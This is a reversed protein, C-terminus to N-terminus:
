ITDYTIGIFSGRKVMYLCCVHRTYSLQCSKRLKYVNESKSLYLPSFIFEQSTNEISGLNLYRNLMNVPCTPLGTKAVLVDRGERYIDTKSKVLFLKIYTPFFTIDSRRLNILESFRLLGSYCILCMSAIRLDKLNCHKNGYTCVIKKLIDPTIPEKKTIM